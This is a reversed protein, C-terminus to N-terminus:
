EKPMADARGYTDDLRVIDDEGLYSGSQVEVLTLPVRGPNELRHPTGASIFTSENERLLFSRDGCVVRATGEVVVWHEARHFHYQLSLRAGPEVRIQKVQFRHGHDIVRFTGWPRYVTSRQLREPRDLTKLRDVIQGVSQAHAQTTVLVADDTAVVLANDLGLSVVLPGGESRIYSERTDLAIVDGMLTNGEPDHQSIEWLANWSGVDNWGISMPVVVARRTREMVAKDVSISPAAAFSEADLRIFDLDPKAHDLAAQAAALADPEFTALEALFSRASCLFIGSNWLFEGSSVFREATARDPKEVFRDVIHVSRHNNIRRGRQIYGYGTEARNPIVGFTVIANDIAAELGSLVADRFAAKDAILHDSPMILIVADSNEAQAILAGVAAAPATSRGAPELVLRGATVGTKRLAEAVMFRHEHSCVVIPASFEAGHVRTVADALMPQESALPLFQKPYHARSLPWLRSGIGGSLVVPM